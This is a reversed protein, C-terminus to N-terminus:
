TANRLGVAVREGSRALSATSAYNVIGVAVGKEHRLRIFGQYAPNKAVEDIGM